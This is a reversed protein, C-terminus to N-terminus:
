LRVFLDLFLLSSNERLGLGVVMIFRIKLLVFWRRLQVLGDLLLILDREVGDVILIYAAEHLCCSIEVEVCFFVEITHVTFKDLLNLKEANTQLPVPM